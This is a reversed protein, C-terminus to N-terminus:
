KRKIWNYISRRSVGLIKSTKSINNKTLNLVYKVYMEELDRLKYLKPFYVFDNSYGIDVDDISSGNESIVMYRLIINQLERVNGPFYYNMLKELAKSSFSIKKNYVLSYREIFYEILLPIDEKRERLPPIHIPFVNLRFFLDERFKGEKVLSMLDVNTASIFRVDVGIQELGGIRTFCKEQVVRLLKAQVGLTINGIEDLFLTGGDAFEIKGIKRSLAGTFAGKEYGFLESEILSEPISSCDITVFNKNSRMSKSHILRAVIEKGVGSEGTILVNLDNKSAYEVKELVEKAGPTNGIFNVVDRRNKLNEIERYKSILINVHNLIIEVRSVNVPKVIYDYAGMKICKVVTSIDDIATLIVIYPPGNLDEKLSSIKELFEIGGMNPMRLDLFIVDYKNNKAKNFGEIGNEATHVICSDKLLEEFFLRIGREDDVVLVNLM